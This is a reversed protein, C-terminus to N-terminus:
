MPLSTGGMRRGSDMARWKETWCLGDGMSRRTPRRRGAMAATAAGFLEEFAIACKLRYLLGLLALSWRRWWALVLRSSRNSNSAGGSICGTSESSRTAAVDCGNTVNDRLMLACQMGLSM